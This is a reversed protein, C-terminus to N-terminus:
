DKLLEFEGTERRLGALFRELEAKRVTEMAKGAPSLVKGPVKALRDQLFGVMAMTNPQGGAPDILAIVRVVGIQGLWELADADHLYTAEPGVPKRDFMHTRIAAQVAEIKAQPFDTQRLMATATLAGQDAHDVGEKAIAPFAAMDHLMAAAYLVDDDLTVADSAALAKALQYNRVSHAYGWAPHRLDSRAFRDISVRWGSPTAAVAPAAMLLTAAQLFAVLLVALTPRAIARRCYGTM